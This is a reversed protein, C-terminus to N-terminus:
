ASSRLPEIATVETSRRITFDVGAVDLHIRLIMSRGVTCNDIGLLRVEDGDRRLLSGGPEGTLAGRRVVMRDLDIEYNSSRTKVRFAGSAIDMLSDIGNTAERDIMILSPLSLHM